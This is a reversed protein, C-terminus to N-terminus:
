HGSLAAGGVDVELVNLSGSRSGRPDREVRALEVQRLRDRSVAIGYLLRSARCPSATAILAREKTPATSDTM